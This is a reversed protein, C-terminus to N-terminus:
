VQGGVNGTSEGVQQVNGHNGMGGYDVKQGGWGAGGGGGRDWGDGGGSHPMM